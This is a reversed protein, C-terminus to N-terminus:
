PASQTCSPRIREGLSPQHPSPQIKPEPAAARFCCAAPAYRADQLAAGQFPTRLLACFKQHRDPQPQAQVLRKLARGARSVWCGSLGTAGGALLATTHCAWPAVAGTPPTRCCGGWCELSPIAMAGAVVASLQVRKAGPKQPTSRRWRPSEIRDEWSLCCYPQGETPPWPRVPRKLFRASRRVPRLARCRCRGPEAHSTAPSPPGISPLRSEATEPAMADVKARGHSGLWASPSDACIWGALGCGQNKLLPASDSSIRALGCAPCGSASTSPSRSRARCLQPHRQPPQSARPGTKSPPGRQNHPATLSRGRNALTARRV